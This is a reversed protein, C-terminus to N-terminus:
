ELFRFTSLMQNFLRLREEDKESLNKNEMVNKSQTYFESKLEEPYEEKFASYHKCVKEYTDPLSILFNLGKYLSSSHNNFYVKVDFGCSAEFSSLSTELIAKEKDIEIIKCVRTSSYELPNPCTKVVDEAGVWDNFFWTQYLSSPEYDPTYATFMLGTYIYKEPPGFSFGVKKETASITYPIGFVEVFKDSLEFDIGLEKNIYTKWNATEDAAVEEPAKTEPIKVEEKQVQGCQWFLIAGFLLTILVIIVIGVLTSIRKNCFKCNGM